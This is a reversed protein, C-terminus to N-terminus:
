AIRMSFSVQFSSFLYVFFLDGGARIEKRMGGGPSLSPVAPAPPPSVPQRTNLQPSRLWSGPQIEGEREQRATEKATRWIGYGRMKM